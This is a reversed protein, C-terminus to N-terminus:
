WLPSKRSAVNYADIMSWIYVGFLLFSAVGGTLAALIVIAVAIGWMAFCKKIDGNYIQGLGGLLLSLVLAVAPNKGEAYRRGPSVPAAYPPPPPYQQGGGPAPPVYGAGPPPTPPATTPLRTGCKECFQGGAVNDFGCNPCYM